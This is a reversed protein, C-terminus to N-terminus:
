FVNQAGIRDHLTMERTLNPIKPASYLLLTLFGGGREKGAYITHPNEWVDQWEVGKLRVSQWSPLKVGEGNRTLPKALYSVPNTGLTIKM